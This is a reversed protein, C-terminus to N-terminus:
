PVLQRKDLVPARFILEFNIKDVHQILKAEFCAHQVLLMALPCFSSVLVMFSLYCLAIVNWYPQSQLLAWQVFPLAWLSWPKNWFGGFASFSWDPLHLCLAFTRLPLCSKFDPRYHPGPIMSHLWESSVLCIIVTGPVLYLKKYYLLEM